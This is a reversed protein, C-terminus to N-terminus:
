RRRYWVAVGFILTAFPFLVVAAWFILRGEAGTLTINRNEPNKPRISLLDTDEALWSTANLFLDSNIAEGLYANSAFDSDGFVILRSEKESKAQDTSAKDDATKSDSKSVDASAKDGGADAAKDSPSAPVEKTAVVALALPGKIDKGEDFTVKQQKIDSEGWSQSSTRVLAITKYGLLSDVSEVSRAAPFISMQGSLDKTIPHDAYDAALPAGAGFGFLQGLGSADVVFDKDLSVGYQDLFKNMDFESEPDVLLFFKGGAALYQQLLDVENPFFDMKPGASIIVAADQPLKNQQALNYEEVKYNQKEIEAKVQSYGAPQSDSLSREGHGTLFYVTKEEDRTVKIIANTVKEETPEEITEKKKPGVVVIQGNRTVGYRAVQSPDKQPDVIEYSVRPSAYHYESALQRFQGSGQQDQFFGILQIDENLDGLIKQTQDSLAYLHGETLDFRKHHRFNLFNVLVLIGVVLVLTLLAMGGMRATRGSLSQKIESFNAVLYIIILAAGAYVGAQAKWDWLSTVTYYFFGAFLLVLGIGSLNNIIKRMATVEEM